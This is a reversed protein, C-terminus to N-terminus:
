VFFRTILLEKGLSRVNQYFYSGQGVDPSKTIPSNFYIDIHDDFLVIKDILYHHTNAAGM